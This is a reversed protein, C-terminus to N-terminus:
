VSPLVCSSTHRCGPSRHLFCSLWSSERTEHAACELNMTGFARALAGHLVVASGLTDCPTAPYRLHELFLYCSPWRYSLYRCAGPLETEAQVTADEKTFSLKQSKSHNSLLYWTFVSSSCSAFHRVQPQLCVSGM